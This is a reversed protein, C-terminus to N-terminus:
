ELSSNINSVLVPYGIPQNCSQNTINRLFRINLQISLRENSVIADFLINRAENAWFGRVLESEMQFVAWSTTTLGFRLIFAENNMLIISILSDDISSAQELFHDSTIPLVPHNYSEEIFDFFDEDETSSALGISANFNLLVGLRVTEVIYDKFTESDVDNIIGNFLLVLLHDNIRNHLFDGNHHNNDGNHPSNDNNSNNEINEVNLNNQNQNNNNDERNENQSSIGPNFQSENLKKFIYFFTDYILKITSYNPAKESHHYVFYIFDKSFINNDLCYKVYLIQNSDNINDIHNFFDNIDENNEDMFENQKKIAIYSIARFIWIFIENKGLVSYVTDHFNYQSVNVMELEMSKSILSFMSFKFAFAHGLNGISDTQELIIQQIVSLEGDHCLTQQEYELGRVQFRICGSEISIIHLISVLDNYVLLYFSDDNVIGLQLNTIISFLSKELSKSLSVYVPSEIPRDVAINLFNEHENKRSSEDYFCNPRPASPLLIQGFGFFIQPPAGTLISWFIGSGSISISIDAFIRKFYGFLVTLIFKATNTFPDSFLYDPIVYRKSSMCILRAIKFLKRSIILSILLSLSLSQFPIEFQFCFTSIILAFSYLHPVSHVTNLANIILLSSLIYHLSYNELIYSLYFPVTAYSIWKRLFIFYKNSELIKGHFIFYSQHSTIYPIVIDIIVHCITISIPIVNMQKLLLFRALSSSLATILTRILRIFFINTITRCPNIRHRTFDEFSFQIVFSIGTIISLIVFFSNNFYYLLFASLVYLISFLGSSIAAKLLSSSGSIGYAYKNIVELTYHIFTIPHGIMGFFILFPFVVCFYALIDEIEILDRHSLFFSSTSYIVNPDVKTSMGPYIKVDILDILSILSTLIGLFFSRTFGISPDNLTTSYPDCSPPLLLSFAATAPIFMQYIATFPSSFYRLNYSFYSMFFSVVYSGLIYLLNPPRIFTRSVMERDFQINVVQDNILILNAKIRHSPPGIHTSETVEGSQILEMMRFIEEPSFGEQILIYAREDVTLAFNFLIGRRSWLQASIGSPLSPEQNLELENEPLDISKDLLKNLFIVIMQIILILTSVIFSIIIRGIQGIDVILMIYFLLCFLALTSTKVINPWFDNRHLIFGGTFTCLFHLNKGYLEM